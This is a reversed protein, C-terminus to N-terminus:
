ECHVGVTAGTAIQFNPWLNKESHGVKGYHEEEASLGQESPTFKYHDAKM